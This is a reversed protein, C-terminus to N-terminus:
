QGADKRLNNIESHIEDVTPYFATELFAWGAPGISINWHTEMGQSRVAAVLGWEAFDVVRTYVKDTGVGSAYKMLEGARLLSIRDLGGVISEGLRLRYLERILSRAEDNTSIKAIKNHWDDDELDSDEIDVDESDRSESLRWLFDFLGHEFCRDRVLAEREQLLRLFVDRKKKRVIDDKEKSVDKLEIMPAPWWPKPQRDGNATFSENNEKLWLRTAEACDQIFEEYEAWFRRWRRVDDGARQSKTRPAKTGQSDLSVNM